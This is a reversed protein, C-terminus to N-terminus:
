VNLSQIKSIGIACINEPICDIWIRDTGNQVGEKATVFKGARFVPSYWSTYIYIYIDALIQGFNCWNKDATNLANVVILSDGELIIRTFGRSRCCRPKGLRGIFIPCCSIV